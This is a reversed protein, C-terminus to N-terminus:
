GMATRLVSDIFERKILVGLNLVMRVFSGVNHGIGLRNSESWV